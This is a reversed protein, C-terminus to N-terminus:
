PQAVRHALVELALPQAKMRALGMHTRHACPEVQEAIPDPGVPAPQAVVVAVAERAPQPAVRRGVAAAVHVPAVHAPASSSRVHEGPRCPPSACAFERPCRTGCPLPDVSPRRTIRPPEQFLLGLFTREAFRLLFSVPLRFSLRPNRRACDVRALGSGTRGRIRRTLRAPTWSGAERGRLSPLSSYLQWRRRAAPGRLRM